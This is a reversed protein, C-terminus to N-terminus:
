VLGSPAAYSTTGFGQLPAISSTQGYNGYAGNYSTMYNPQAMPISYPSAMTSSQLTPLLSGPMPGFLLPVVEPRESAAENAYIPAIIAGEATAPAQPAFAEPPEQVFEPDPVFPQMEAPAPEMVPMAEDFPQAEEPSFRQLGELYDQPAPRGSGDDSPSPAGRKSRKKTNMAYFGGGVGATLCFLLFLGGLILQWIRFGGSPSGSLAITASGSTSGSDGSFLETEVKPPAAKMCEIGKTGTLNRRIASLSNRFELAISPQCGVGNSILCVEFAATATCLVIKDNTGSNLATQAAQQCATLKAVDCGITVGVLAGLSVNLIRGMAAPPGAFARASHSRTALAVEQAL